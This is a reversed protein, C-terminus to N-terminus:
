KPPLFAQVKFCASYEVVKHPDIQHRQMADRVAALGREVAEDPMTWMSSWIRQELRLLFEQPTRTITYYHELMENVPQWGSDALFTEFQDPHVGPHHDHRNGVTDDWAQWLVDDYNGLRRAKDNWGSLLMGGPRLMRAVERLADRWRPILHFIHVAVAADFKGSYLPLATADGIIVRVPETTQKARLRELMPRALDVGVIQGVHPALPLAIRGTGIGVEFVRSASTLGGVRAFLAGIHKEEGSPFGRTDDYYDVARDFAVSDSPM